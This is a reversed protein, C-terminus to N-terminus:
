LTCTCHIYATGFRVKTMKELFLTLYERKDVFISVFQGPKARSLEGPVAFVNNQTTSNQQSTEMSVPWDTCLLILLDTTQSPLVKM